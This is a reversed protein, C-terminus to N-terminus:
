QSDGPVERRQSITDRLTQYYDIQMGVDERASQILEFLTHYKNGGEQKLYEIRKDARLRLDTIVQDIAFIAADPNDHERLDELTCDYRSYFVSGKEICHEKSGIFLTKLEEIVSQCRIIQFPDTEDEPPQIRAYGDWIVHAVLEISQRSSLQLVSRSFDGGYEHRSSPDEMEFGYSTDPDGYFTTVDVPEESMGYFWTM